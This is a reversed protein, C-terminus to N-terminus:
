GLGEITMGQSILADLREDFWALGVSETDGAGGGWM